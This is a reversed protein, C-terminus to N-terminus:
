NTKKLLALLDEYVEPDPEKIYELINDIALRLEIIYQAQTDNMVQVEHLKSMARDIKIECDEELLKWQHSTRSNSATIQKNTFDTMVKIIDDKHLTYGYQNVSELYKIVLEKM